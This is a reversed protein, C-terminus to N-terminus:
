GAKIKFLDILPAVMRDIDGAGITIFIETDIESAMILLQEKTVMEPNGANMKSLIM